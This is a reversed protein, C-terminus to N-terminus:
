GATAFLNVHSVDGREFEAAFLPTLDVDDDQRLPDRPLLAHRLTLQALLMRRVSGTQASEWAMAIAATLRYLATAAQRAIADHGKETAAEALANVDCVGGLGVALAPGWQPDNLTGVLLEVGGKRM